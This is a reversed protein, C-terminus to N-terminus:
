LRADGNALLELEIVDGRDHGSYEVVRGDVVLDVSSARGLLIRFPPQGSYRRTQGSRLLDYELREGDAAVIEVWSDDRVDVQLDLGSPAAIPSESGTAPDRNESAPVPTEPDTERVSRIASLPLASASMHGPEDNQAANPPEDLALAQSIRQAVREENASAAADDDIPREVVSAEREAMRSGSQVYFIVLPPVIAITVVVYTAVKLLRDFNFVRSSAPMVEQLDPPRDPELEALLQDADLGLMSAYNRIYGRRYIGAMRDVRGQELDEILIGALNVRRGAEGISLRRAERAERLQRGIREYPPESTEATETAAGYETM